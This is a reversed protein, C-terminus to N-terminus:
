ERGETLLFYASLVAFTALAWGVIWALSFPVGLVLPDVHNGLLDYAPWILAAVTAVTWLALGVHPWRRPRGTM